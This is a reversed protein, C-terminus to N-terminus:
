KHLYVEYHVTKKPNPIKGSNTISTHSKLKKIKTHMIVKEPKSDKITIMTSKEPQIEKLSSTNPDTFYTKGAYHKVEAMQTTNTTKISSEPATQMDGVIVTLVLGIFVSLAGITAVPWGADNDTGCLIGGTILLGTAIAFGVFATITAPTLIITM